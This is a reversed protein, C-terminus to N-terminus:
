SGDHYPMNYNSSNEDTDDPVTNVLEDTEPNYDDPKSVQYSAYIIGQAYDLVSNNNINCATSSAYISFGNISRLPAMYSYCGPWVKGENIADSYTAFIIGLVNPDYVSTKYLQNGTKTDIVDYYRHVESFTFKFEEIGKDTTDCIVLRDNIHPVFLSGMQYDKNNIFSFENPLFCQGEPDFIYSTILHAVDKRTPVYFDLLAEFRTVDIGTPCSMMKIDKILKEGIDQETEGPKGTTFLTLQDVPMSHVYERIQEEICLYKMYPGNPSINASIEMIKCVDGHVNFYALDEGRSLESFCKWKIFVEKNGALGPITSVYNYGGLSLAEFSYRIDLSGSSCIVSVFILFAFTKKM